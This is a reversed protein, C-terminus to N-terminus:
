PIAEADLAPNELFSPESASLATTFRYTSKPSPAHGYFGAFQESDDTWESPPSGCLGRVNLRHPSHRTRPAVSPDDIRELLMSVATRALSEWDLAVSTLGYNGVQVEVDDGITAVTVDEPVRLGAELVAEIVSPVFEDQLVLFADPRDPEKLRQILTTLDPRAMGSTSIFIYDRANPQLGGEFSARMFGSFRDHTTELMDFMGTVGVRKAGLRILHSTAEFAIATYDFTVIDTPSGRLGHDLCVTPVIRTLSAASAPDPFGRFPWILAGAMENEAAYRLREEISANPGGGLHVLHLGHELLLEAIRIYLVRLVYTSGDIFAVNNSVNRKGGSSAIAGKSPINQAWGNDILMALARRITSRSAGFEQQLERETPLYRGQGIRGSAIRDQLETAIGKFGNRAVKSTVTKSSM